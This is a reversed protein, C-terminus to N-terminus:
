FDYIQIINTMGFLIFFCIRIIVLNRPICSLTLFEDQLCTSSFDALPRGRTFIRGVGMDRIVTSKPASEERLMCSFSKLKATPYPPLYCWIFTLVSESCACTPSQNNSSVTKKVRRCPLTFDDTFVNLIWMITISDDWYM